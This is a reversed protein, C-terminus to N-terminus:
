GSMLFVLSLLILGVGKVIFVLIVLIALGLVSLKLGRGGL